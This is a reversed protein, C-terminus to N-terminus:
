RWSKVTDWAIKFSAGLTILMVACPLIWGVFPILGVLFSVISGLLITKWSVEYAKGKMMWRFLVSGLVVPATLLATIWLAIFGFLSIAGLPIGIVTCLLVISALPALLAVLAGRGLEKLPQAVVAQVLKKAYGRFGLGIVFAGCLLMLFKAALFLSFFALLGSRAAERVDAGQEFHTEGRVVAGEEMTVVQSATYNLTGQIDAQSGLTLQDAHVQVNGAIPANIVVQGGGIRVDGAVPADLHIVGGGAVVDGAIGAGGLNLQGGAILVDGGVAGQLIVTGGGVRVDDGVDSLLMVTGGSGTVDASVSGRVIVNGGATILDGNVQGAVTVNGGAIYLDEALVENASLSPQDGSRFEAASVFAPACLLVSAVM